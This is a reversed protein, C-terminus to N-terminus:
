KGLYHERQEPTLKEISYRLMTRPMRHAHSDLFKLLESNDAKGVERLMWGVAKHMLDHEHGLFKKALKLILRFDKQKIHPYTALVAVREHWLQGSAALQEIRVRYEPKHLSYDGLIKPASSDVLDWNNVRDLKSLYFEVLEGRQPEREREYQLVLILLATLRCEHWKSDLLTTLEAQPLARFQKSIVRQDPVTVGLFCDGEGYQGPGSKFFLPFSKAKVADAKDKLAREVDKAKM